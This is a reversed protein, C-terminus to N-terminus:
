VPEGDVADLLGVFGAAEAAQVEGHMAEFAVDAVAALDVAVVVVRVVGGAAEHTFILSGRVGQPGQPLAVHLANDETSPQIRARM